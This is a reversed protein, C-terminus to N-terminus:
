LDLKWAFVISELKKHYLQHFKFFLICIGASYFGVMSGSMIIKINIKFCRSLSSLLSQYVM